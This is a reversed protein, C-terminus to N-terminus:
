FQVQNGNLLDMISICSNTKQLRIRLGLQYSHLKFPIADSFWHAAGQDPDTWLELQSDVSYTEKTSSLVIM